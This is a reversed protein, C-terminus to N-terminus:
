FNIFFIFDVIVNWHADKWLHFSWSFEGLFCLCKLVHDEFHSFFICSTINIPVEPSFHINKGTNVWLVVRTICMLIYMLLCLNYCASFVETFKKKFNQSIYSWNRDQWRGRLGHTWEHLIHCLRWPLTDVPFNHTHQGELMPSRSSKTM